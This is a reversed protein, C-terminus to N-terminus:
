APLSTKTFSLVASLDCAEGKALPTFPAGEAGARRFPGRVEKLRKLFEQRTYIRHGLQRKYEMQPSYCHGLSWFSYGKHELWKGLCSLQIWGLGTANRVNFGSLSTYIPGISYGIEGAVLLESPAEYGDAKAETDYLEISHLQFNINPDASALKFAELYKRTMWNVGHHEKQYRDLLAYTGDIDRSCYLRYRNGSGEVRKMAKRVEKSRNLNVWDLVGYFPQLEPLPKASGMSYRSGTTITFFGEYALRALFTPDWIQRETGGFTFYNFDALRVPTGRYSHGVVQNFDLGMLTIVNEECAEFGDQQFHSAPCADFYEDQTIMTRSPGTRDAADEVDASSAQEKKSALKAAKKKAQAEKQKERIKRKVEESLSEFAGDGSSM